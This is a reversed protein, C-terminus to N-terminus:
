KWVIEKKKKKLIKSLDRKVFRNPNTQKRKKVGLYQGPGPALNQTTTAAFGTIGTGGGKGGAVGGSSNGGGGAGAGGGGGGEILDFIEVHEIMAAEVDNIYRHMMVELNEENCEVIPLKKLVTLIALQKECTLTDLVTEDLRNKNADYYFMNISDKLLYAATFYQVFKSKGLFKMSTKKLNWCFRTLIDWSEREKSSVPHRLKKGDKDIIGLKFADWDTFDTMLKKLIMYTAVSSFLTETMLYKNKM